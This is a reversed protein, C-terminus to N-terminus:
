SGGASTSPPRFSSEPVQEIVRMSKWKGQLFRLLFIVGRAWVWVTVVFWWWMVGLSQGFWCALVGAISIIITVRLVFWTDGAGKIAGALVLNAGDFLCYAAVFRLLLITLDRVRSFQEPDAGAAHGMLFLDPAFIYLTAFLSTYLLSLGLSTWTAKAALDPRGQTLQQGVMVSTAIAVGMMPIFAVMNVNLALTSATLAHAGLRGMLLTLAGFAAAEIVFELGSAGGFYFLRRILPWDPRWTRALHFEVVTAPRAMVWALYLVKIWQALNTAWAAGTIGFEPFGAKGFIWLYDFVVNVLTAIVDSFMVTRTAGRGSFFASQAAAIVAGGAGFMLTQFYVTENHALQADHGSLSFLYKGFPILALFLPTTFVGIWIGQWTVQGIREPRNAGFYQAVFTNVYGAIGLPFCIATWYWTGAPMAASMAVDSYWFLFMRDVFLQISWSGTSIILPLAM